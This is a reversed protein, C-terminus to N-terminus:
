GCGSFATCHLLTLSSIIHFSPCPLDAPNIWTWHSGPIVPMLTSSTFFLLHLAVSIDLTATVPVTLTYSIVMPTHPQPLTFLLLILSSILSTFCVDKHSNSYSHIIFLTSSLTQYINSVFFPLYSNSLGPTISSCPLSRLSTILLWFFVRYEPGHLPTPSSFAVVLFHQLHPLNSMPSGPRM